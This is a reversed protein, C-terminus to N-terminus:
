SLVPERTREGWWSPKSNNGGTLIKIALALRNNWFEVPMKGM